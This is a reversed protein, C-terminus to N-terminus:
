RADCDGLMFHWRQQDTLVDRLEASRALVLLGLDSPRHGFLCHRLARDVTVSLAHTSVTHCGRRRAVELLADILAVLSGRPTDRWPLDLVVLDRQQEDVAFVAMGTPAGAHFQQVFECRLLPSRVYRWTVWAGDKRLRVPGDNGATDFFDAAPATALRHEFSVGALRRRLARAAEALHRLRTVTAGRWGGDAATVVYHYATVAASLDVFGATTLLRRADPSVYAAITVPSDHLVARLLRLAPLGRCADDVFYNVPLRAEHTRGGAVLTAALYGIGGRVREGSALVFFPIGTGARPQDLFAWNWAAADLLRPRGAHYERYFAM